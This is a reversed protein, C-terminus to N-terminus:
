QVGFAPSPSLNRFGTAIRCSAPTSRARSSTTRLSRWDILLYSV